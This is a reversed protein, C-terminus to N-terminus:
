QDALFELVQQFITEPDYGFKEDLVEAPASYGFHDMGIVKGNRGTLGQLTVPLGATLAFVPVGDPLIEQQYSIPQLRFLGESIASVVRSAVPIDNLKLAVQYLTSVESGNALLIVEPKSGWSGVTYAGKQAQLAAQYRSCREPAPLDSVSQRSLLLATPSSRNELAMKWAVKTENGDAPRLVLLSNGGKHNKLKELLRLQAEQEVPQHTPGDEGVRFSDHTWVYIVPLGMLAALRVAPKMYDSFVLFTGCATFYGGHLVMGNAISAMTLESVGAHLFAGTFNRHAFPKRNKLFGDTKDSNALDASMVVLNDLNASLYELVRSSALRTAKNSEIPITEFNLEPLQGSLYRHYAAAEEPHAIEQAKAESKRSAASKTKEQRIQKYYSAVQPFVAFPADPDGSLNRITKEISAGAKSLPQGHTTYNGELTEGQATIAGKAMRTKGIILTPRHQEGVATDLARRIQDPDHGNITLVQWGWAEYKRATDERTVAHTYTSLQVDNSDFFMILNNLGLFGAIRGAGQSIEEQIGGDSVLTYIRHEMWKGFRSVLHREALAAGVAMAHGQGLPGSTNEIGHRIDLEPHGPTHSGWQRFNRLDDESYLGYLYLVAYLLTSMHGPDLFFRDRMAWEPDSPDFNMYETFLIHIFDAAGMAGGPHGSRAKEVMAACLVRINDAAAQAVPNM